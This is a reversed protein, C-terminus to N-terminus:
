DVIALNQLMTYVQQPLSQGTYYETVLGVIIFFMASRGNIIEPSPGWGSRITSQYEEEDERKKWKDSLANLKGEQEALEVESFTVAMDAAAAASPTAPATPAEMNEIDLKDAVAAAAEEKDGGLGFPIDVMSIPRARVSVCAPGAAVPAFGSVSAVLAGAAVCKLYAPM